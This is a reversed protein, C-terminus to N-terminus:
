WKILAAEPWIWRTYLGAQLESYILMSSSELTDAENFFGIARFITHFLIVATSLKYHLSVSFFQFTLLSM